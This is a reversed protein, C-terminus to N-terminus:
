NFPNGEMHIIKMRRLWQVKDEESITSYMEHPDFISTIYIKKYQNKWNREYKINMPNKYYDIFNIFEKPKMDSPRFDDYWCTEHIEETNVGDWFHGDFKVRDYQEDDGLMNFVKRSKGVGSEGWIFIIEVDPKYDDKKTCCQNFNVEKWVKYQSVTVEDFPLGKLEAALKIKNRFKKAAINRGTGYIDITNKINYLLRMKKIYNMNSVGDGKCMEIHAGHFKKANLRTRINFQVYIHMHLGGQKNEELCSILYSAHKEWILYDRIEEYYPMTSENITLQFHLAQKSM